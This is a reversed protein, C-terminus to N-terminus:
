PARQVYAYYAGCIPRDDEGMLWARVETPGASLKQDFVASVDDDTISKEVTAAGVQLRVRTAPIAVGAGRLVPRGNSDIDSETQAPLPATIPRNVENPWRRVDFRYVGDHAIDIHWVGSNRSGALVHGQAWTHPQNRDRIWDISTLWTETQYKSGVIARAPPQRAIAVEDWYQDYRQRLDSVVQPHQAAINHKQSPDARIDYLEKVNILRWRETMVISNLGKVPSMIVNQQQMILTRDSWAANANRLLPVLSRGELQRHGRDPTKLACLEILTPLLDIHSTLQKVDMPKDGGGAPWHVFCPVRHGGEYVSGKQGRMGANFIARGGATGNDTLFILITDDTLRREDLFARLRGLNWDIRSIMALFDAARGLQRGDPGRQYPERWELPVNWPGHPANTALYVFFPQGESQEIFQMTEDFYVDTCYGPIREPVGNSWQIDNMRDSDWHDSCTALGADGLGVWQDFGRDMPRYPYNHGLHWKGFHGTRYGSAKFFEAMTTEDRSLYNRSYVTQWVHTRDSHRGTMLAARTPSCFPNVHFDTFRVSQSHLRDLNPTQIVPNGHAAIDGYGQDDTMILIVNPGDAAVAQSVMCFVGIAAVVCAARIHTRHSEVATLVASQIARSPWQLNSDSTKPRNKTRRM